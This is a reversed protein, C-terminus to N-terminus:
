FRRENGKQFHFLHTKLALKNEIRLPTDWDTIITGQNTKITFEVPLKQGVKVAGSRIINAEIQVGEIAVLNM